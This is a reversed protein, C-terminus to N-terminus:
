NLKWIQVKRRGWNYADAHSSCVMDIKNGKIAGGTDNARVYYTNGYEDVVKLQSGLAIVNPDVAITQYPIVKEGMAGITPDGSNCPHAKGTGRWDETCYGTSSFWGLYTGESQEVIPERKIVTGRNTNNIPETRNVFAYEKAETLAQKLCEEAKQELEEANPHMAIYTNSFRVIQESDKNKSFIHILNLVLITLLIIGSILICLTTIKKKKQKLIFVM